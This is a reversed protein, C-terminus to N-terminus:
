RAIQAATEVHTPLNQKNDITDRFLLCKKAAHVKQAENFFSSRNQQDSQLIQEGHKPSGGERRLRDKRDEPMLIKLFDDYMTNWIAPGLVSGQPVGAIVSQQSKEGMRQYELVRKSFYGEILVGNKM